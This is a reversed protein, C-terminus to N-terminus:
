DLFRQWHPSLWRKNSIQLEGDQGHFPEGFDANRESRKFYPLVGDYGWGTAGQAAWDDYDARNGRVYMMTNMSSSGGIMRGRPLFIRRGFLGPEPESLYNWDRPTQFLTPFAVPARVGLHRDNGGSELLLVSAGGASLRNALVCGATGAGVIVYDYSSM